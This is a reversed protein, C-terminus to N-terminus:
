KTARIVLGSQSDVETSHSFEAVSYGCESLITYLHSKEYRVIHLPGSCELLYDPPNESVPPVGEEVFTTFFIRGNNALYPHFAKLYFRLEVELMHSFVSYLYIVDFPNTVEPLWEDDEVLELGDPNYRENHMNLHIFRYEPRKSSVYMTCWRIARESIDVGTYDVESELRILGIALRGQGCGVDLVRGRTPYSLLSHVRKAESEASNLYTSDDQYAAGCLRANQPPLVSGDVEIYNGFLESSAGFLLRNMKNIMRLLTNM